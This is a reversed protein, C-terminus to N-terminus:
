RNQLSQEEGLFWPEIIGNKIRFGRVARRANPPTEDFECGRVDYFAWADFPLNYDISQSIMLFDPGGGVPIARAGMANNGIPLKVQVVTTDLYQPRHITLWDVLATAEAETFFEELAGEAYLRMDDNKDCDRIVERYPTNLSGDAGFLRRERKNVLWKLQVDRYGHLNAVRSSVRYLKVM